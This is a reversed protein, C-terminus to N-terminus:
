GRKPMVRMLTNDKVFYHHYLGAAAHLGILFYGITGGAEHIEKITGALEKNAASLAPLQLGFFPIPKGSASLLFWGVIPLSVMLAYLAFHMGKASLMQWKPPNPVIAPATKTINVAIRLLVLALVSLGLMFHWTKMLNRADSGRPYVDALNIFAYVAILLVVMVWHLDISIVSYRDVTTNTSTAM